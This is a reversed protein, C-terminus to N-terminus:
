LYEGIMKVSAEFIAKRETDMMNYPSPHPIPIVPRSYRVSPIQSGCRKMIGDLGTLAKLTPAGLAVLVDPQIIEIEADLFKSCNSIEVTTPKRNSPTFCHVLNTIYLCSRDIGLIDNIAKDFNKGSPGIFPRGAEIEKRGPNQGIVMIKAKICMNSFVHTDKGEIYSKGINCKRCSICEKELTELKQCKGL